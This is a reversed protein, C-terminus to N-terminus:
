RRAMGGELGYELERVMVHPLHAVSSRVWTRSRTSSSLHDQGELGLSESGVFVGGDALASHIKALMRDTTDRRSTGSRATGSSSTM